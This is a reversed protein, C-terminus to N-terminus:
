FRRELIEIAPLKKGEAFELFAGGATSIYSIDNAVNFKEIAAITDGGGALSFAPVDAIARTMAETGKAFQDFEFVGIPGNWIITKANRICKVIVDVSDKGLDFIMDDKSVDKINKTIARENADLKKGCVVDSIVPLSAGRKSLKDIIKKAAPVLEEEYMSSGVEFGMAKIFTNAIGGGVILQDVKDSLTDLISLKSSVKSGGVIAIMPRSPNLLAKELAELEALFLIGACAIDIHEAIGYTSAEKRHATGFADMVFIDALSAYKKALVEENRKEGINFRCNELVILQGPAIDFPTIAWDSVLRVPYDLHNKLFEVVPQLSDNENFKGEEPRTEPMPKEPLNQSIFDYSKNLRKVYKETKVIAKGERVNLELDSTPVCLRLQFAREPHHPVPQDQGYGDVMMDPENTDQTNVLLLPKNKASSITRQISEIQPRYQGKFDYAHAILFDSVIDGTSDNGSRIGEILTTLEKDQQEARKAEEQRQELLLRVKDGVNAM